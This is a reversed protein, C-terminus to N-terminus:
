SHTYVNMSSADSAYNSYTFLLMKECNYRIQAIVCNVVPPLVYKYRVLGYYLFFFQTCGWISLIIMARNRSYACVFCQKFACAYM